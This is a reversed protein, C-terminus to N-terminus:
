GGVQLVLERNPALIIAQPARVRTDINALTGTHHTRTGYEMQNHISDLRALSRDVVAMM